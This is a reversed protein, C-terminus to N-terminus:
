YDKLNLLQDLAKHKKLAQLFKALNSLERIAFPKMIDEIKDTPLLGLKTTYSIFKKKKLIEIKRRVTEKPIDLISAVAFITLKKKGYFEGLKKQRTTEWVSDWNSGEKTNHSLYHAGITSIIIFSEYDIGIMSKSDRFQRNRFNILHFLTESYSDLNKKM